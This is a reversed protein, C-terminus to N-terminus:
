SRRRLSGSMMDKIMDDSLFVAGGKNYVPATRMKKEEIQQRALLERELMEPDDRYMIRPDNIPKGCSVPGAVNPRQVIQQQVQRATPVKPLKVIANTPKDFLRQSNVKSLWANYEAEAQQWGPKKKAKASKQRTYIIAM